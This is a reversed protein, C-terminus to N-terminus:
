PTAGRELLPTITERLAAPLTEAIHLLHRRADDYTRASWGTCAMVEDRTTKGDEVADLLMGLLPDGRSAERLAAIAGDHGSRSCVTAIVHDLLPREEPNWRRVGDFTDGVADLVLERAYLPDVTGGIRQIMRVRTRAYRTAREFMESTAQREFEARWSPPPSWPEVSVGM